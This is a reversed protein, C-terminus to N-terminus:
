RKFQTAAMGPAHVKLWSDVRKILTKNARDGQISALGILEYTKAKAARALVQRNKSARSQKQDSGDIIELIPAQFNQGIVSAIDLTFEENLNPSIMILALGQEGLQAALPQMYQLATDASHGLAIIVKNQYGKDAVHKMAIDLHAKARIEYPIEASKEADKESLNIDVTESPTEQPNDAGAALDETNPANNEAGPEIATNTPNAQQEKINRTPPKALSERLTDNLTIEDNKKAALTRTPAHNFDEKPLNISLTYWGTDPLFRRLQRIVFPWDAHQEKDHLLVVAGQSEPTRPLLELGLVRQNNDQGPYTVDLWVQEHKPTAEELADAMEAHFLLPSLLSCLLALCFHRPSVRRQSITKDRAATASLKTLM